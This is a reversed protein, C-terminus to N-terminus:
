YNFVDYDAGVGDTLVSADVEWADRFMTDPMDSHEMIKYPKGHPVDKQAIADLGYKELAEPTPVVVAVGNNETQYVIVKM